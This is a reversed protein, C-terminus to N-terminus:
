TGLYDTLPLIRTAGGSKLIMGGREDLGVFTGTEPYDVSAGLGDAKACWERHLPEFGDTLYIHLWNMVHRGWAEILDPATIDGCGEDHLTTDDPTEGPHTQQSAIPIDLALILWDPEAEPDSTSSRVTLQGCIAGNVKIRDPWALHVGVEPPALAGVAENLGLMAAFSVRLTTDLPEEPALVLAVTMRTPDGGYFVTGPEVEIAVSAMAADLPDGPVAMGTLLPPFELARTTM